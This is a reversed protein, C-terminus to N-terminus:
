DIKLEQVALTVTFLGLASSKGSIAIVSLSMASLQHFVKAEGEGKREKRKEQSLRKGHSRELKEREQGM